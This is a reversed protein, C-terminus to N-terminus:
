NTYQRTHQLNRHGLIKRLKPLEVGEKALHFARAHRLMHPHVSLKLGAVKAAKAVIFHITRRTLPNGSDSCFIYDSEVCNRRLRLLWGAEQATLRHVSSVGNNLRSVKILQNDLDVDQWRLESVESVRLAHTYITLILLANRVANVESARASGILVAIDKPTLHERSHLDPAHKKRPPVRRNRFRVESKQPTTDFM